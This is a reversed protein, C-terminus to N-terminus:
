VCQAFFGLFIAHGAGTGRLFFARKNQFFVSRRKRSAATKDRAGGRSFHLPNIRQLSNQLHKFQKIPKAADQAIQQPEEVRNYSVVADGDQKKCNNHLQEHEGKGDLLLTGHCRLCLELLLHLLKLSDISVVLHLQRFLGLLEIRLLAGTGGAAAQRHQDRKWDQEADIVGHEIRQLVGHVARGLMNLLSNGQERLNRAQIDGGGVLIRLHVDDLM